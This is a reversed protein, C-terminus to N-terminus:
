IAQPRCAIVLGVIAGIGASQRHNVNDLVQQLVTRADGPALEQVNRLLADTASSSLFGLVSVLLLAAPALTLVSRYTLAAAWDSINDKRYESVSRRLVGRWSAATLSTPRRPESVTAM